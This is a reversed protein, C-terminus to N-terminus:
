TRVLCLRVDSIASGNPASTVSAGHHFRHASGPPRDSPDAAGCCIHIPFDLCGSDMDGSHECVNRLKKGCVPCRYLSGTHRGPASLHRGDPVADHLQVKSFLDLVCSWLYNTCWHRARHTREPSIYNRSSDSHNIRVIGLGCRWSGSCRCDEQHSCYERRSVGELVAQESLLYGCEVACDPSSLVLSRAPRTPAAPM